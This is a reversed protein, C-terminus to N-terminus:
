TMKVLKAKFRHWTHGNLYEGSIAGATMTENLLIMAKLNPTHPPTVILSHGTLDIRVMPEGPPMVVEWIVPGSVDSRVDLPPSVAQFISLYGRAMETPTSVTLTIEAVLSGPLIPESQLKLLFLGAPINGIETTM